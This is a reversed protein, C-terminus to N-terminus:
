KLSRPRPPLALALFISVVETTLNVVQCSRSSCAGLKWINLNRETLLSHISKRVNVNALLYHTCNSAFHSNSSCNFVQIAM